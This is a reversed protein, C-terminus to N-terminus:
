ATATRLRVPGSPRAPVAVGHAARRAGRRGAPDRAFLSRTPSRCSGNPTRARWTSPGIGSRRLEVCYADGFDAILSRVYTGSSCDIAFAARDGERWWSSSGSHGNVERAALEVAEGGAGLSTPGGGAYRSRRTRRRSRASRAPPCARAARAADARRDGARRGPRGHDLDVGPARRDRLAKPLAMLFRQVRTARGVMVVLLGTAFPDLTGAHGVKGRAPRVAAAGRWSTTRRCARPSTSSSSATARLAPRALELLAPGEVLEPFASTPRSAPPAGTGAAASRAPSRPVRGRPRRHRAPLGQPGTYLQRGHLDRILGAM